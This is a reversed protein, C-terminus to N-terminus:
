VKINELRKIMAPVIADFAQALANQGVSDTGGRAEIAGSYEVITGVFVENDKPANSFTGDYRNGPDDTYSYGVQRGSEFHISSRLRATDVPVAILYADRIQIASLIIEDEMKKQIDLSLDEFDKILNAIERKDINIGVAM